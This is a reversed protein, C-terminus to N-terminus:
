AKIEFDKLCHGKSIIKIIVPVLSKDNPPGCTSAFGATLEAHGPEILTSFSLRSNLLLVLEGM